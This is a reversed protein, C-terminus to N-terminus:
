NEKKIDRNVKSCLPQCNSWHFLKTLEEETKASAIPIIHDIDWGFNLEGNYKGYNDWNMWSQWQSEIHVKFKEWSCGLMKHTNSNKTYNQKKISKRIVTRINSKLRYLPDNRRKNRVYITNRIRIREKDNQKQKLIKERNAEYYKKRRIKTKEKNNDKYKKDSALVKEKNNKYYERRKLKLKEKHIEYNKKDIEKKCEKCYCDLGDKTRKRKNFEEQPKNLKCKSCLKNMSMYKYICIYM